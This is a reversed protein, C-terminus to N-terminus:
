CAIESIYNENYENEKRKKKEDVYDVFQLCYVGMNWMEAQDPSCGCEKKVIEKPIIKIKGSSTTVMYRSAFPLQRIIERRDKGPHDIENNQLAQMTYWFSEARRNLFREDKSAYSEKFEQVHKGLERLRSAVGGGVGVTGVVFDDCDHKHSFIMAWGTIKMEDTEHSIEMDVVRGNEILGMSCDDGGTATDIAIIRKIRARYTTRTAAIDLLQSTILTMAEQTIRKCRMEQDYLVPLMILKANNLEQISIIGALESDLRSAYYGPLMKTADGCEPLTGGDGICAAQDFGDTAHNIGKPTYLYMDWRFLKRNSLHPPLPAAKIPAFIETRVNEKILAYEDYVVGIADIGRLSDPEDSGGIKLMSGNQFTILMTQSNSHWGFVTKDPLYSMLMNPDDWVINRAQVQTPAIYVYKTKPNRCCERILLNLALTTKRHRRAWELWFSHINGSDFAELVRKQYIHMGDLFQKNPIM